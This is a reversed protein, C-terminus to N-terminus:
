QFLACDVKTKNQSPLESCASLCWQAAWGDPLLDRGEFPARPSRQAGGCGPFHRSAMSPLAPVANRLACRRVLVSM